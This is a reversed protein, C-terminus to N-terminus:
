TEIVGFGKWVGPIGASTCVYGLYGSVVPLQEYVYQGKLRYGETPKGQSVGGYDVIAVGDAQTIVNKNVIVSSSPIAVTESNPASSEIFLTNNEFFGKSCNRITRYTDSSVSRYISNNIVRYFTDTSGVFYVFGDKFNIVCGDITITSNKGTSLTAKNVGTIKCNKLNINQKDIAGNVAIVISAMDTTDLELEKVSYFALIPSSLDTLTHKVNKISAKGGFNEIRLANKDIDSILGTLTINNINEEQYYAGINSGSRYRYYYKCKLNNVNVIGSDSIHAVGNEFDCDDINIIYRKGLSNGRLYLGVIRGVLETMSGHNIGKSSLEKCQKFNVTVTSTDSTVDYTNARYGHGNSNISICNEFSIETSYDKEALAVFSFNPANRVICDKIITNKCNFGGIGNIGVGDVNFNTEVGNIFVNESAKSTGSYVSRKSYDGDLGYYELGNQLGYVTIVDGHYGASGVRLLLAGYCNLTVNSGKIVLSKTLSFTRNPPFLVIGGGCGEVFDIAKQCAEWDDTKGDGKAGFDIVSVSIKNIINDLQENTKNIENQFYTVKDEAIAAGKFTDFENKMSEVDAKFDTKIKELAEIENTAEINNSGTTKKNVNIFFSATTMKGSADILQLDCEAIGAIALINNKLTIDLENKNIKFYSQDELEVLTKDARLVGLKITQGTIDLATSGRYLALKLVGDDEQKFSWVPSYNPKDVNISKRISENKM